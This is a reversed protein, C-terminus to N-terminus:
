KKEISGLQYTASLEFGRTRFKTDESTYGKKYPNIGFNYRLDAGVRESIKYQFGAIASVLFREYDAHGYPPKDNVNLVYSLEAGGYCRFAKDSRFVFLVPLSLSHLSENALVPQGTNTYGYGYGYPSYGGYGYPSYGYGGYDSSTTMYESGRNAYLLEVQLGMNKYVHPVFLWTGLLAGEKPRTDYSFTSSYEMKKKVSSATFGGKLGYEIQANAIFASSLFFLLLVFSLPNEIYFTKM